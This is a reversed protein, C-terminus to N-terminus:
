MPHGLPGLAPFRGERLKGVAQFRWFLLLRKLLYQTPTMLFPTTTINEGTGCVYVARPMQEYHIRMGKAILADEVLTHLQDCLPQTQDGLWVPCHEPTAPFVWCSGCYRHFNNFEYTLQHGENWVLGRQLCVADTAEPPAIDLFDASLIDDADLCMLWQAGAEAAAQAGIAQKKIKDNDMVATVREPLDTDVSLVRISRVEEIEPVDNCILLCRQPDISTSLVSRLTRALIQCCADWNIANAKARLPILLYLDELPKSM